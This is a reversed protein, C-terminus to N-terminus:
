FYKKWHQGNKSLSRSWFLPLSQYIIKKMDTSRRIHYKLEYYVESNFAAIPVFNKQPTNAGSVSWWYISIGKQPHAQLKCISMKKKNFFRFCVIKLRYYFIYKFDCGRYYKQCIVGIKYVFVLIRLTLVQFNLSAFDPMVQSCKLTTQWNCSKIM